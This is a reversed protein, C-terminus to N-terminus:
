TSPGGPPSPTRHTRAATKKKGLLLRCVLNLHSQLESTHEESRFGADAEVVAPLDELSEWGDDFGIRAKPEYRGSANSLAGRGRRRERDIGPGFDGAPAPSPASPSRLSASRAM